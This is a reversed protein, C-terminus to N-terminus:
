EQVEEVYQNTWLEGEAASPLEELDLIGLEKNLTLYNDVFEETLMGDEPLSPIMDNMGATLAEDTMDEFYAKLYEKAEEPNEKILDNANILARVFRKVVDGNEEAWDKRFAVGQYPYNKLEPVEGVSSKIFVTGYGDLEPQNPTPPTLLFADIQGSKLAALLNGASGLSVMGVDKNPDYGGETLLFRTYIDTPANPGTIGFTMEGLAELKKEIPDDVSVGLEELKENRVVLNMSMNETTPFVHLLEKGQANATAISTIDVTAADVEGSILMPPQLSGKDTYVMEVDLNEQEFFGAQEAVFVVMTHLAPFYSFKLKTPEVKEETGSTTNEVNSAGGTDSTNAQNTGCGSLFILLMSLTVWIAKKM